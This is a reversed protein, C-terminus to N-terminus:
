KEYKWYRQKYKTKNKIAKSVSNAFSKKIERLSFLGDWKKILNNKEDIELIAGKFSPNNVGQRKEALWLKFETTHTKKWTGNAVKTTKTKENSEQPRQKGLLKLRQKDISESTRIRGLAKQRMLQKTKFSHKLNLMGPAEGGGITMNKLDFGWSRYLSIYHQEWFEWESIPVEDIIELIPKFNEKVLLQVWNAKYTRGRDYLHASLRKRPNNSKGVYRIQNSRPDILIYIFTTKM